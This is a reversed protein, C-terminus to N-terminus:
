HTPANLHLTRPICSLRYCPATFSTFVEDRTKELFQQFMGCERHWLWCVCYQTEWENNRPHAWLSTNGPHPHGDGSGEGSVKVIHGAETLCGVNASNLVDCKTVIILHTMIRDCLRMVSPSCDCSGAHSLHYQGILPSATDKSVLWLGPYQWWLAAQKCTTWHM